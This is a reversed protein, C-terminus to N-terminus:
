PKMCAYSLAEYVPLKLGPAGPTLKLIHPKMCAYSFAEYVPLKLIHPRLSRKNLLVQRSIHTHTPTHTHM